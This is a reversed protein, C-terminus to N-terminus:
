GEIKQVEEPIGLQFMYSHLQIRYLERDDKGQQHYEEDHQKHLQELYKFNSNTLTNCSTFGCAPFRQNDAQFKYLQM